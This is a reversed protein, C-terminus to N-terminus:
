FAEFSLSHGDVDCLREKERPVLQTGCRLCDTEVSLQKGSLTEPERCNRGACIQPPLLFAGESNLGIFLALYAFGFVAGYGIFKLTPTIMDKESDEESPPNTLMGAYYSLPKTDTNSPNSPDVEADTGTVKAMPMPSKPFTESDTAETAKSQVQGRLASTTSTTDKFQVFTEAFIHVALAALFALVKRREAVVAAFLVERSVELLRMRVHSIGVSRYPCYYGLATFKRECRALDM